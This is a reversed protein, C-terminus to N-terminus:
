LNEAQKGIGAQVMGGSGIEGKGETSYIELVESSVSPFSLLLPFTLLGGM